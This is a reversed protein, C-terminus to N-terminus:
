FLSAFPRPAVKNRANGIEPDVLRHEINSPLKDVVSALVTKEDEKSKARLNIGLWRRADELNLMVPMRSHIEAISPDAPATIIACSYIVENNATLWKDWIGAFLLPQQADYVEVVQKGGTVKKWELYSSAPLICRQSQFPQKFARSTALTECRANFMAFDTSPGNSWSPVLWWRGQLWATQHDSSALGSSSALMPVTETPAINFLDRGGYPYPQGLEDLYRVQKPSLSLNFRGCM